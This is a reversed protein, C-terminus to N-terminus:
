HLADLAGGVAVAQRVDSNVSTPTAGTLDLMLQVGRTEYIGVEVVSSSMGQLAQQVGPIRLAPFDGGTALLFYRQALAAGEEGVISDLRQDSKKGPLPQTPSIQALYIDTLQERDPDFNGVYVFMTEANPQFAVRHAGVRGEQWPGFFQTDRTALEFSALLSTSAEQSVPQSAEAGPAAAIIQDGRPKLYIALLVIALVVVGGVAVKM